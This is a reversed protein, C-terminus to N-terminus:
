WRGEGDLHLEGNRTYAIDGNPQTVQLFGRGNIAVDFTQDTIQMDGTTFLKQTSVTRM